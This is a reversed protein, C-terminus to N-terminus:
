RRRQGRTPLRSIPLTWRFSSSTSDRLSGSRQNDARGVRSHCMSAWRTSSRPSSCRAMVPATSMCRCRRSCSITPLYRRASWHRANPRPRRSAGALRRHYPRNRARLARPCASSSGDRVAARGHDVPRFLRRDGVRLAPPHRHLALGTWLPPDHQRGRPRRERAVLSLEGELCGGSFYGCVDGGESVALQAGLPRPSTGEIGVVTLLAGRQGERQWRALALVPPYDVPDRHVTRATQDLTHLM